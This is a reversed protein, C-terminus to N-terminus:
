LVPLASADKLFATFLTENRLYFLRISDFVACCSVVQVVETLFVVFTAKLVILIASKEHGNDLSEM